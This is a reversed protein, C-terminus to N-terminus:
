NIVLSSLTNIVLIYDLLMRVAWANVTNGPERGGETPLGGGGGESHLGVGQSCVFAQSFMVKARTRRQVDIVTLLPHQPQSM